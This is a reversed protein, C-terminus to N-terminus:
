ARCAPEPMPRAVPQRDSVGDADTRQQQFSLNSGVSAFVNDGGSRLDRRGRGGQLVARDARPAGTRPRGRRPIMAAPIPAVDRVGPARAAPAPVPTTM